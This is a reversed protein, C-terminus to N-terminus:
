PKGKKTKSPKTRPLSKILKAAQEFDDDVQRPASAALAKFKDYELEAKAQAVEHSIRGAHTLIDRENLTMFGDLKQVWDAMHMPVRRMAQGQAFILYQEVLNNLAALEDANLYNKAIAVDQKRVVSGRWNTLGLNPKTADARAHVIEAATHGTIAWHVKNQVTKFFTLSVNDTPDYDVSTAYIDTIKQYFRRESTRIDQIRRMLEEFYDFPQDPNKLREDDMTFGKVIYEHLRQTAWMRFRTAVASKVRYGVSLIADLNYVDVTRRVTRSGENRIWLSEKHTAERRLEGEEYINQLHLSINQQSTQFLEAMQQQVLWVTEGEFRVELKLKGDEAQYVLFQGTAARADTVDSM